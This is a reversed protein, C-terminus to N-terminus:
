IAPHLSPPDDKALRCWPPPMYSALLRSKLPSFQAEELCDPSLLVPCPSATAITCPLPSTVRSLSTPQPAPSRQRWQGNRPQAELAMNSDSDVKCISLDLGLPLLRQQPHQFVSTRACQHLRLSTRCMSPHLSPGFPQFPSSDEAGAM